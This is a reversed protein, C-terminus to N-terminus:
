SAMRARCAAFVPSRGSAEYSWALDLAGRSSQAAYRGM